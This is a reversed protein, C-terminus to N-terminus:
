GFGDDPVVRSSRNTAPGSSALSSGLGTCLMIVHVIGPGTEM